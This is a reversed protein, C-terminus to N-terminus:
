GFAQVSIHVTAGSIVAAHQGIGRSWGYRVPLGGTACESPPQQEAVSLLAADVEGVTFILKGFRHAAPLSWQAIAIVEPDVVTVAQPAAGPVGQDPPSARISPCKTKGPDPQRLGRM